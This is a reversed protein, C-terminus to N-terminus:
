CEAGSPGCLQNNMESFLFSLVMGLGQLAGVILVAVAVVLLGYEVLTAGTDSNLVQKAKTLM